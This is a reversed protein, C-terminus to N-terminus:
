NGSPLEARDIVLVDVPAKQSELKVGVQEQLAAFLSIGEAAGGSEMNDPTWRLVFDYRQSEKTLDAVPRQLITALRTTLEAMTCSKADIYGPNTSTGCHDGGGPKAVMGNKAVTIAYGPLTKTEHHFKLQFREALLPQLMDMLEPGDAPHDARAAIDFRTTDIWKPGEAIQPDPVRYAFRILMRLTVNTMELRGGKYSERDGRSDTQHVRVSAAEFTAACLCVATLLLLYKM